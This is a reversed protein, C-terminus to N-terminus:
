EKLFKYTKRVGNEDTISIMYMGLPLDGIFITNTGKTLTASLLERGEISAISVHGVTKSVNNIYLLNSAPIPYISFQDVNVAPIDLTKIINTISDNVASLPIPPVDGGYFSDSKIYGYDHGCYSLYYNDGKQNPIELSQYRRMSLIVTDTPLQSLLLHVNVYCDTGIGADWLNITDMLPIGFYNKLVKVQVGSMGYQNSTLQLMRGEIISYNNNFDYGSLNFTGRISSFLNYYRVSCTCAHSSFAALLAGIFIYHKM